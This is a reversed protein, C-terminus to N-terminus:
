KKPARVRKTVPSPEVFSRIFWRGFWGPTIEDVGPGRKAAIAASIAQAYLENTICLHEMCQGISWAGPSPSRNLQEANLGAMLEKARQDLVDLELMLRPAWAPVSTAPQSVM